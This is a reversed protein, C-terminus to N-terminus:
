RCENNCRIFKVPKKYSDGLVITPATTDPIIETSQNLFQKNKIKVIAFATLMIIIILVSAFLIIKKKSM